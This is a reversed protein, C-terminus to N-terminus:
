SRSPRRKRVRRIGLLLLSFVLCFFVWNALIFILDDVDPSVNPGLIPDLLALAMLGPLGVIGCWGGAELGAAPCDALTGCLLGAALASIFWLHVRKM